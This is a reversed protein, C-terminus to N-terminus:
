RALAGHRDYDHFWIGGIGYQQIATADYKSTSRLYFNDPVVYLARSLM